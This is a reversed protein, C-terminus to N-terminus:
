TCVCYASQHRIRLVQRSSATFLEKPELPQLIGCVLKLHKFTLGALTWYCVLMSNIKSSLVARLSSLLGFGRRPRAGPLGMPRRCADSCGRVWLDVREAAGM